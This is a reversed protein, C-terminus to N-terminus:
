GFLQSNNRHRPAFNGIRCLMKGIAYGKKGSAQKKQRMFLNVATM